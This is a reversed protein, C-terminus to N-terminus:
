NRTDGFLIAKKKRKENKKYNKINWSNKKIQDILSPMYSFDNKKKLKCM